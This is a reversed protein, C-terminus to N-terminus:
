KRFIKSITSCGKAALTKALSYRLVYRAYNLQYVNEAWQYYNYWGRLTADYHGILHDIPQNVMGGVKAPQENHMYRKLKQSVKRLPVLLKINGTTTKVTQVVNHPSGKTRM